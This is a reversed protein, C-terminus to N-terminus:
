SQDQYELPPVVAPVPGGEYLLDGEIMDRGPQSSAVGGLGGGGSRGRDGLALDPPVWEVEEPAGLILSELFCSLLLRESVVVHIKRSLIM